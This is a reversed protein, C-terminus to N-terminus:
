VNSPKARLMRAGELIVISCAEHPVTRCTQTTRLNSIGSPSQIGCAIWPSSAISGVREPPDRCRLAGFRRLAEWSCPNLGGPSAARLWCAGRSTEGIWGLPAVSPWHRGSAVPASGHLRSQRVDKRVCAMQGKACQYDQQQDQQASRRGMRM